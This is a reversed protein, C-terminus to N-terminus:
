RWRREETPLCAKGAFYGVASSCSTAPISTSHTLCCAETVKM